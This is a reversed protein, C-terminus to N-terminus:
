SVTRLIYLPVPLNVSLYIEMVIGIYKDYMKAYIYAQLYILPPPPPLTGTIGGKLSYNKVQKMDM